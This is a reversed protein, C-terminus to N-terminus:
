ISYRKIAVNPYQEELTDLFDHEDHCHPCTPSYFFQILSDTTAQANVLVGVGFSLVLTLVVGACLLLYRMNQMYIQCEGCM